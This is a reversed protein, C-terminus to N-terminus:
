ARTRNYGDRFKIAADLSLVPSNMYKSDSFYVSTLRRDTMGQFIWANESNRRTINSMNHNRHVHKITTRM